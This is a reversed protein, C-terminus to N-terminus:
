HWRGLQIKKLAMTTRQWVGSVSPFNEFTKHVKEAKETLHRLGNLFRANGYISTMERERGRWGFFLYTFYFPFLKKHKRM